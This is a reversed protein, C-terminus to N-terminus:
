APCNMCISATEATRSYAALTLLLLLVAFGLIIAESTELKKMARRM